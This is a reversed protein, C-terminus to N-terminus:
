LASLASQPTASPRTPPLVRHQAGEVAVRPASAAARGGTRGKPRGVDTASRPNSLPITPLHFMEAAATGPETAM